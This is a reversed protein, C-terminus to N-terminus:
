KVYATTMRLTGDRLLIWGTIIIKKGNDSDIPIEQSYKTGNQDKSKLVAKEIDFVLLQLLKEPNDLTIGLASKFM